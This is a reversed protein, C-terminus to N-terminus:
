GQRGLCKSKANAADGATSRARSLASLPLTVPSTIAAIYLKFLGKIIAFPTFKSPFFTAVFNRPTPLAEGMFPLANIYKVIATATHTINRLCSATFTFPTVLLDFGATIISKFINVFTFSFRIEPRESFNDISDSSGKQSSVASAKSFRCLQTTLDTSSM